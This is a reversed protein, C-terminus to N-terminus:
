TLIELPNSRVEEDVHPIIYYSLRIAYASLQKAYKKEHLLNQGSDKGFPLRVTLVDYRQFFVMVSDIRAFSV